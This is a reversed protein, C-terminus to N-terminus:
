GGTSEIRREPYLIRGLGLPYELPYMMRTPGQYPQGTNRYFVVRVELQPEMLFFDRIAIRNRPDPPTSYVRQQVKDGAQLCGTDFFRCYLDGGPHLARRVAEHVILSRAEPIPPHNLEGLRWTYKLLIETDEALVAARLETVIRTLDRDIDEIAPVKHQAGRVVIPLMITLASAVILGAALSVGVGEAGRGRGPLRVESRRFRRPRLERGRHEFERQAEQLEGVRANM